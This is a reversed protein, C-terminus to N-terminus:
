GVIEELLCEFALVSAFFRWRRVHREAIAVLLGM